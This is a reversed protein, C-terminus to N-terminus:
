IVGLIALFGSFMVLFVIAFLFGLGLIVMIQFLMFIFAVLDEMISDGREIVAM